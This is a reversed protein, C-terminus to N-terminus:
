RLALKVNASIVSRPIIGLLIYPIAGALSHSKNALM